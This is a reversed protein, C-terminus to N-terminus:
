RRAEPPFLDDLSPLPPSGFGVTYGVQLATGTPLNQGAMPLQAGMEVSGPGLRTALTLFVGMMKRQSTPLRLGLTEYPSGDLIQTSLRAQVPGVAGAVSAYGFWENGPTVGVLDNTGRWRYGAWAQVALGGQGFVRGLELAVEADKQGETLPIVTRDIPFDSGPLKVGARVGFWVPLDFEDVGVLSPGGRLWLRVDGAGTRSLSGGLDQFELSHLAGQAWVELGSVLGVAATLLYSQLDLKGGNIYVREIGNPDFQARTKLSVVSGQIWGQGPFLTGVGGGTAAGPGAQPAASCCAQGAAGDPVVIGLALALLLSAIPAIGSM